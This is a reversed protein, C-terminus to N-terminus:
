LFPPISKISCVFKTENIHCCDDFLVGARKGPHDSKWQQTKLPYGFEHKKYEFFNTRFFQGPEKAPPAYSGRNPNGPYLLIVHKEFEPYKGPSPSLLRLVFTFIKKLFLLM